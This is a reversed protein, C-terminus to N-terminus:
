KITRRKNKPNERHRYQVAILVYICPTINCLFVSSDNYMKVSTDTCLIHYVIDM